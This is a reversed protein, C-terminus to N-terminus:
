VGQRGRITLVGGKVLEFAPADKGDAPMNPMMKKMQEAMVTAMDEVRMVAPGDFSAQVVYGQGGRTIFYSNPSSTAGRVDGNSAVEIKMTMANNPGIYNGTIDASAPAGLALLSIASLQVVFKM